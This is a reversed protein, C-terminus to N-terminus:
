PPPPDLHDEHLTCSGAPTRTCRSQRPWPLPPSSRRVPVRRLLVMVVAPPLPSLFGEEAGGVQIQAHSCLYFDLETPHTISVDVMTGAPINGSKGVQDMHPPPPPPPTKVYVWWVGGCKSSGCGVWRHIPVSSGHTTGRKSWWSPSGQSTAKRWSPAHRVCWVCSTSFCRSPHPPHAHYEM